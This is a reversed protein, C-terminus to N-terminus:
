CVITQCCQSWFALAFAGRVIEISWADTTSVRQQKQKQKRSNDTLLAACVSALRSALRSAVLALYLAWYPLVSGFLSGFLLAIALYGLSLHPGQRLSLQWRPLTPHSLTNRESM